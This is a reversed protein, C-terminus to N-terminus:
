PEANARAQFHLTQSAAPGAQVRWDLVADLRENRAASWWDILDMNGAATTKITYDSEAFNEQAYRELFTPTYASSAQFITLPKKKKHQVLGVPISMYLVGDFGLKQVADKLLKFCDDFSDAESLAIAFNSSVDIQYSM